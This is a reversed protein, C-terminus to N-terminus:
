KEVWKPEKGGKVKFRVGTALQNEVRAGLRPGANKFAESPASVFFKMSIMVVSVILLVYEITM